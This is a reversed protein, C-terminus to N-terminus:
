DDQCTAMELSSIDTDISGKYGFLIYLNASMKLTQLYILAPDYSLNRGQGSTLPEEM